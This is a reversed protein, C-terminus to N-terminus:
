LIIRRAIKIKNKNKIYKLKKHVKENAKDEM